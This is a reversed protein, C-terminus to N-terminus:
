DKEKAITNTILAIIEANTFNQGFISKIDVAQLCRTLDEAQYRVGQLATELPETGASGMFDGYFKAWTIYGHDVNLFVEISGRDPFRQKNKFDFHPFVGYKWQWTDYKKEALARARSIYKFPIELVQVDNQVLDTAIEEMLQPITMNKQTFMQHINTVQAQNSKIGKSKLKEHDEKLYQKMRGLEVDFLITGHHVLRQHYVYQALGSIKKGDVKIDNKGEFKAPVGLRNLTRIIPECMERYSNKGVNSTKDVIFTYCMNGLDQFVAGGGSLRRVIALGDRNCAPIDIEEYANQNRGIIVADRNQWLLLIQDKIDSKALVEELALNYYPNHERNIFYIM